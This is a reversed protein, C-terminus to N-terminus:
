GGRRLNNVAGMETARSAVQPRRAYGRVEVGSKRLAMGMSGGILGLGIIGIRM